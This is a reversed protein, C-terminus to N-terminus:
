VDESINSPHSLLKVDREVAYRSSPPTFIFSETIRRKLEPFIEGGEPISGAVGHDSTPLALREAM